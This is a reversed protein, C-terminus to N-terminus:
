AQAGRADGGLQAIEDEEDEDLGADDILCVRGGRALVDRPEEQIGGLDVRILSRYASWAVGM